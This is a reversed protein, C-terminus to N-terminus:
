RLLRTAAKLASKKSRPRGRHMSTPTGPAFPPLIFRPLIVIAALVVM